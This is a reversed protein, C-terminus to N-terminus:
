IGFQRNSTRNNLGKLEPALTLEYLKQIPSQIAIPRIGKTKTVVVKNKNILIIRSVFHQAIVDPNHRLRDLLEKKARKATDSHSRTFFSDPIWDPGMGKGSALENEKLAPLKSPLRTVIMYSCM